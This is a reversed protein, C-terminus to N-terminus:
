KMEERILRYEEEILRYLDLQRSEAQIAKTELEDLAIEDNSYIAAKYENWIEDALRAVENYERTLEHVRWTRRSTPRLCFAPPYTMIETM